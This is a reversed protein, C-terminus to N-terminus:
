KEIKLEVLKGDDYKLCIKKDDAIIKDNLYQEEAITILALIVDNISKAKSKQKLYLLKEHVKQNLRVRKETM